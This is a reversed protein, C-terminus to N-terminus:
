AIPHSRRLKMMARARELEEATNVEMNRFNGYVVKIKYGHELIRLQELKEARELATAPLAVYRQLFDARFAYLGLHKWYKTFRERPYPIVSRSFFIAHGNKDSVVKVFNSSAIDAREIFKTAPTAVVALRDHLLAEVCGDIAKVPILPEDGQINVVIKPTFKKFKKAAAAVRDSGCVINTRTMIVEAGFRQCVDFIEKADTAILVGDLSKAACARRWTHYILPQGNILRLLKEPLRTSKLRAPIVGLVQNRNKM